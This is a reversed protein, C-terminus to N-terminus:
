SAELYERKLAEPLYFFLSDIKLRMYISMTYEHSRLLAHLYLTIKCRGDSHCKVLARWGSSVPIVDNWRNVSGRSPKFTTLNFYFPEVGKRVRDILILHQEPNILTEFRETMKGNELRIAAFEVMKEKTYDLGTTETDLVIEIIKKADIM